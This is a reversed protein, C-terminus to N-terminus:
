KKYVYADYTSLFYYGDKTVNFTIKFNCVGDYKNKDLYQRITAVNRKHYDTFADTFTVYESKGNVKKTKLITTTSASTDVVTMKTYDPGSTRIWVPNADKAYLCFSFLVFLLISVLRKVTLVKLYSNKM